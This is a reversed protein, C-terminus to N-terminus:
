DEKFARTRTLNWGAVAAIIIFILISMAAAFNYMRQDLTLKYIWSILIDTSGAVTYSPNHPGGATVFFVIGFNNFNHTISLIILPATSSLVTPVTLKRLQQWANAGDISAAEYMEQNVTTMIGSILAMFYPFGLWINVLVLTARAWAADSLFPLAQSIFGIDLLMRNIPGAQTLLNRFILMSIMAPIAWPLIYLGRWVKAHLVRKSKLIIAQIFGMTYATFTALFAWIVTWQFVGIFTRGWIPLRVIDLFTQFGTWDVLFRPPINNTNYNTFAVIASFLIPVLSFILVLIMGPTIAIYEFSNELVGRFYSGSTGVKLRRMEKSEIVTMHKQASETKFAMIQKQTKYADRVSWILIIAFLALIVMALLGSVMLVMSHDFIQVASSTRPVEGLTVIGWIGRSFFGAHRIHMEPATGTLLGWTGSAFEALVLLVQFSFFFIAKGFQKNLAQGSGWVVGSMIAAIYAM